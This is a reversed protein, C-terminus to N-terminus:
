IKNRKNTIKNTSILKEPLFKHLKIKEIFQLKDPEHKKLKEIINQNLKFHNGIFDILNENQFKWMFNIIELPNNEIGNMLYTDLLNNEKLLNYIKNSCFISYLVNNDKITEIEKLLNKEEFLKKIIDYKPNKLCLEFIININKKSSNNDLLFTIINFDLARCVIIEQNKELFDKYNNNFMKNHCFIDIFKIMDQSSEFKRGKITEKFLYNIHEPLRNKICISSNLVNEIYDLKANKLLRIFTDEKVMLSSEKDINYIIDELEKLANEDYLHFANFYLKPENFNKLQKKM